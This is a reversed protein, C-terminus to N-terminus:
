FIDDYVDNDYIDMEEMYHNMNEKITKCLMKYDEKKIYNEESM